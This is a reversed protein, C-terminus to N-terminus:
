LESANPCALSAARRAIESSSLYAGRIRNGLKVVKVNLGMRVVAERVLNEIRDQDPGLLVIDPKLAALTGEIDLPDSGLYAEDVYRLSKVVELRQQEPVLPSRGKLKQVTSDRAVVVIVKGLDRARRLLHLHGPHIIEFAGGVLVRPREKRPWEVKAIGLLRIADLLGEAYSSCAISTLVDKKELFYEADNLYMKAQDVLKSAEGLDQGLLQRLAARVNEIYKRARAEADMGKMGGLGM